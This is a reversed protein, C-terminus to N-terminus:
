AAIPWGEKQRQDSHSLVAVVEPPLQPLQRRRPREALVKLCAAWAEGQWCLSGTVMPASEDKRMGWIRWWTVVREQDLRGWSDGRQRRMRRERLLAYLLTGHLGVEALPSRAKARLADIDLVSQWRKIALEM